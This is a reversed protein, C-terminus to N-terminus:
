RGKTAERNPTATIRVDDGVLLLETIDLRAIGAITDIGLDGIASRGGGLLAPALYAVVEDVLRARIFAAALTPGGELLAHHIERRGLLALAELLDHSRV